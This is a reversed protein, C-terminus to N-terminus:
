MIFVEPPQSAPTRGIPPPFRQATSSRLPRSSSRQHSHLQPGDLRRHSDSHQVAEYLDQQLGRTATFSPDTWDATPIATSYQKTSTKNFVPLLESAENTLTKLYVVADTGGM